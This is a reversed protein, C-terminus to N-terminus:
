GGSIIINYSVPWEATYGLSKNLSHRTHNLGKGAKTRRNTLQTGRELAINYQKYKTLKSITSNKSEWYTGM